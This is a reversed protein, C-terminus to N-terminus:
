KLGLEDILAKTAQVRDDSISGSLKIENVSRKLRGCFVIGFWRRVQYIPMLWRHKALSPYRVILVDTSVFVRSMLYGMKGGKKGHGVAIKNETTGYVGGTLIYKEMRLSLDDHEANEFWVRSLKRAAGAFTLLEGERLLGDRKATDASNIRDLIWLDIFPRIGCGGGEFHKAMHAVHYFYFLEDSVEFFNNFGARVTVSNWVNNLVIASASEKGKELLTYHLEVHIGGSSYLSIDHSGKGQYTYGHEDVLLAKAKELDEEHVLIDIDCSTRMWPQPYYQRIISGKLPIFPIEAREFVKCLKKYEDQMCEYRYATILIYKHVAASNEEILDNNRLGMVLLNAIDHKSSTKLLEELMDPSYAKRDAETLKEGTVASRLLAFFMKGNDM